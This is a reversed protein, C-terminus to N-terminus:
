IQRFALLHAIREDGDLRLEEVGAPPTATAEARGYVEGGCWPCPEGAIRALFTSTNVGVQPSSFAHGDCIARYTVKHRCEHSIDWAYFTHQELDAVELGCRKCKPM